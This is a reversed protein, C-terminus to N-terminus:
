SLGSHRGIVQVGENDKARLSTLPEPARCDVWTFEPFVFCSGQEVPVQSQPAWVVQLALCCLDHHAVTFFEFLVPKTKLVSVDELFTEM